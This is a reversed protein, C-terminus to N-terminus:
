ELPNYEKIPKEKKYFGIGCPDIAFEQLNRRALKFFRSDKLYEPLTVEIVQIPKMCVAMSVATTHGAFVVPPTSEGARVVTAPVEQTCGTIRGMALFNRLNRGEDEANIYVQRPYYRRLRVDVEDWDVSFINLIHKIDQLRRRWLINVVDKRLKKLYEDPVELILDSLRGGTERRFKLFLSYSKVKEKPPIKEVVRKVCEVREKRDPYLMCRRFEYVLDPVDKM